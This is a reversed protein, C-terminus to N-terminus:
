FRKCPIYEKGLECFLNLGQIVFMSDQNCGYCTGRGKHRVVEDHTYEVIAYSILSSKDLVPHLLSLNREKSIALLESNELGDTVQIRQSDEIRSKCFLIGDKEVSIKKLVELKNFQKM